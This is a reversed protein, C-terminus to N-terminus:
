EQVAIRTSSAGLERRMIGRGREFWFVLKRLSPKQGGSEMRLDVTVILQTREETTGITADAPHDIDGSRMVGKWKWTSGVELPFQILPIPPDFEEAAAEKLLFRDETVMYREVEMAEGEINLFFTVDEGKQERVVDIAMETDDLLLTAKPSFLADPKFRQVSELLPGPGASSSSTKDDDCGLGGLAALTFLLGLTV